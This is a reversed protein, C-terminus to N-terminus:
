SASFLPTFMKEQFKFYKKANNELELCNKCYEAFQKGIYKTAPTPVAVNPLATMFRLDEVQIFKSYFNDEFFKYYEVIKEKSNLDLITEVSLTPKISFTVIVNEPKELPYRQLFIQLNELCKKTTGMGRGKDNIDLPGDCSLQIQLYFKREPYESFVKILDFVKDNWEPFSFNTSSFFSDLYPYYEILQRLLNHIREMHLFPEGGWTEILKLQYKHPFYKVIRKFYYDNEFSEELYKDIEFLAENKHINCYSCKLNCTASPYLVVTHRKDNFNVM